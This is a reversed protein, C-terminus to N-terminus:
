LETCRIENSTKAAFKTEEAIPRYPHFYAKYYPIKGHSYDKKKGQLSEEM